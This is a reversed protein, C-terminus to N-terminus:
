VWYFIKIFGLCGSPKSADQSCCSNRYDPLCQMCRLLFCFEFSALGQGGAAVQELDSTAQDLASLFADVTEQSIPQTATEFYGGGGGGDSSYDFENQTPPTITTHNFITVGSPGNGYRQPTPTM